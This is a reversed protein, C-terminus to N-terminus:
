KETKQKKSSSCSKSEEDERKGPSKVAHFFEQLRTQRKEPSPSRPEAAAAEQAATRMRELRRRIREEKVFKEQVLFQVLGEEDPEAWQLTVTDLNTVQPHLLLHRAEQYNWNAPLPHKQLDINEQIGEITKYQQILQLARTPGLGKIKGCYDCGLLICLDVFQEHTLKLKTLLVPLSYEEVVGKKEANLNRILKSSGFPLADMDETVSGYALGSKVLEACTAEAESPAEVYPVGLLSLLRQCDLIRRKLGGDSQESGAQHLDGASEARKALLPAKQGPPRGDFVYIPKIGNELLHITRYFLGLLPSINERNRNIIPPMASSFQYLVISLDLALSLDRYDQTHKYKVSESAEWRILEALKVIGM